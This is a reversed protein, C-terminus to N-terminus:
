FVKDSKVILLIATFMFVQGRPFKHAVMKIGGTGDRFVIITM